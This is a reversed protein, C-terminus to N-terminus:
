CERLLVFCENHTIMLPTLMTVQSLRYWRNIGTYDQRAYMSPSNFIRFICRGTQVSCVLYADGITEVKYVGCEDTLADFCSFVDNLLQVVQMTDLRAVLDTFCVIDSFM